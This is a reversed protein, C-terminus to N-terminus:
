SPDSVWTSRAIALMVPGMALLLWLQKKYLDSSFFLAALLGVLAIVQARALVEMRLDDNKQFQHAAQIGCGVLGFIVCLLLLLGPVGLEAMTGLYLNHAVKPKDVIFDSRRLTGPVILYHISSTPFNGAGVGRLPEDEVMRWAVKWIDQRGTGGELESVHERAAPPALSAFYFLVFLGTGVGLAAVRPRWRGSFFLAALVAVGLAVLGGRSVTLLIGALSIATALLAAFLWAPSRKAVFALALALVLTAVLTAALENPNQFESSLRAEGGLATGGGEAVIGIATAATAGIVFAAFVRIADERTRVATYVILLLVVNLAVRLTADAASAPHESWTYSLGAWALFLLLAATILPHEPLFDSKADARTVLTALWALALLLGAVKTASAVGSFGPVAEFFIVLTFLVMGNALDAFVVLLFALALAGAIALKPEIGALFGLPAAVCTLALPWFWRAWDIRAAIARDGEPGDPVRSSAGAV